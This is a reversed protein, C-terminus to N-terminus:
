CSTFINSVIIDNYLLIGQATTTNTFMGGNVNWNCTATLDDGLVASVTTSSAYVNNILTATGNIDTANPLIDITCQISYMNNSLLDTLLSVRQISVSTSVIVNILNNLKCKLLKGDDTATNLTTSPPGLIDQYARVTISYSTGPILGDLTTEKMDGGEVLKAMGNYYVVYGDADSIDHMWNVTISTTTTSVVTISTPSSAPALCCVYLHQYSPRFTCIYTVRDLFFASRAFKKLFQTLLMMLSLM